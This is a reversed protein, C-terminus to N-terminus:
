NLGLMAKHRPWELPVASELLIADHDGPWANGKHVIEGRYIRNNLLHFLPGRTFPVGCSVSGNAEYGLPVPSGM